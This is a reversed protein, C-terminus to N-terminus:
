AVLGIGVKVSSILAFYILLGISKKRRRYLLEKVVVGDANVLQSQWLIFWFIKLTFQQNNILIKTKKIPLLVLSSYVVEEDSKIEFRTTFRDYSVLVTKDAITHPQKQIREFAM